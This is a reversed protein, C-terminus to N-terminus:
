VERNLLDKKPDQGDMEKRCYEVFFSAYNILDIASDQISEFNTDHDKSNQMTEIISKIRLMKTNMMDHISAIGRPYYDAAKVSSATNQYDQAKKLQIERAENLVDCSTRYKPIMEEIIM